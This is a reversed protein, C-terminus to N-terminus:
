LVRRFLWCFVCAYQLNKFAHISYIHHIYVLASCEVATSEVTELQFYPLLRMLNSVSHNLTHSIRVPDRCTSIWKHIRPYVWYKTHLLSVCSCGCQTMRDCKCPLLTTEEQLTKLCATPRWWYIRPSAQCGVKWSPLSTHSLLRRNTRMRCRGRAREMSLDCLFVVLTGAWLSWM